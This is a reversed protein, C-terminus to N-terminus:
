RDYKSHVVTEHALGPGKCLPDAPRTVRVYQGPNPELYATVGSELYRTTHEHGTTDEYIRM